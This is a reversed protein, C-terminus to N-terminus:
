RKMKEAKLYKVLLMLARRETKHLYPDVLKIVKDLNDIGDQGVYERSIDFLQTGSDSDPSMQVNIGRERKIEAELFRKVAIQDEIKESFVPLGSYRVANLIGEIVRSHEAKVEYKLVVNLMKELEGNQLKEIAFDEGAELSQELEKIMRVSDAKYKEEVEEITKEREKLTPFRVAALKQTEEETLGESPTGDIYTLRLSSGEPWPTVSVAHAQAATAVGGRLVAGIGVGAMLGASRMLATTLVGFDACVGTYRKGSSALIKNKEALEKCRVQM